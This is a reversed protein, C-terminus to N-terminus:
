QLKMDKHHKEQRLLQQKEKMAVAGNGHKEHHAIRFKTLKIGIERQVEWFTKVM